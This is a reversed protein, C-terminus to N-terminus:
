SNNNRQPYPLYHLIVLSATLFILSFPFIYWISSLEIIGATIIPTVSRILGETLFYAGYGRGKERDPTINAVITNTPTWVSSNFFSYLIYLTALLTVQSSLALLAITLTCGMIALSLTRKVGIREGLYGGSLSGVIGMLPGLGFILSAISKSLNKVNILYTTMFTMTSTIGVARVGCMILFILFGSVFLRSYRFSSRRMPMKVEQRETQVSELHPSNLILVGWVLSPLAWFLYFWRWGITSLFLSLSIVGVASGLSGFANHFGMSRNVQNGNMNRSIQSLGSVHYISSAARMMAAGLLLTWFSRTQSIFLASGGEVLMSLFLLRRVSLRDFLIAAPINTLLGVINPLTVVLSAELISLNFETIFVPILTVQILFYIELFMHTIYIKWTSQDMGFLPM